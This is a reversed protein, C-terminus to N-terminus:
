RPCTTDPPPLKGQLLYADVYNDICSSGELYSTHGEGNWSLLRANGLTKTLDKAGQYPTAPDHLNGVVLVTHAANPATPLPPITRHPQWQQCIFFGGAFNPGFMPDKKNWRQALSRITADSPGPPSDNCSITNFADYLNTYHGDFRQYYQDALDLLGKGDGALAGKLARGLAPWDSRSYMAEAVGTLALNVSVPRGAGAAALPKQRAAEVISQVAHRPDGISRCPEHATCWQAFQDFADEFGQLQKATSEVPGYLPDVAGDLVAVRVQQPFLHIYQAGLETGYSFGLYNLKDDGVAQRIQDMDRATQVTNYDALAAGYKQNCDDAFTKALGKAEDFGDSTLVDPSAYTLLQEQADSLCDIPTSLGVGRPDFGVIDFHAMISAPLKKLLGLALNVGSGGPGGPNVLLSGTPSTDNADHVRLLVLSIQKGSPDAYDLPVSIQACDFSLDALRAPSLGLRDTKIGSSCDLFQAPQQIPAPPLSSTSSSHPGGNALGHGSIVSGTCSALFALAGVAAAARLRSRSRM